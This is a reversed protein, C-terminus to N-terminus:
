KRDSLVKAFTSVHHYMDICKVEFSNPRQSKIDSDCVVGPLNDTDSFSTHCSSSVEIGQLNM